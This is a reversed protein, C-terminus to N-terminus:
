LLERLRAASPASAGRWLRHHPGPMMRSARFMHLVGGPDAITPEGSSRELHVKPTHKRRVVCHILAYSLAHAVFSFDSGATEPTVPHVQSCSRSSARARARIASSFTATRVASFSRSASSIARSPTKSVSRSAAWARASVSFCISFRLVASSDWNFRYPRRSLRQGCVPRWRAPATTAGELPLVICLSRLCRSPAVIRPM